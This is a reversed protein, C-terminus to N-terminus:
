LGGKVHWEFLVEASGHNDYREEVFVFGSKVLVRQSAINEPAVTAVIKTLGLTEVGYAVIAPVVESALGQGWHAKEFAYKVEAEFQGGPHVLGCFGVPKLLSRAELTFMGYGRRKYNNATVELWAKCQEGTLPHGDGTWRSVDPDSYVSTIAALDGPLWRRGILRLTEFVIAGDLSEFKGMGQNEVM